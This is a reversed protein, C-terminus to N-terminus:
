QQFIEVLVEEEESWDQIPRGFFDLNTDNSFEHGGLPSKERFMHKREGNTEFAIELVQKAKTQVNKIGLKSKLRHCKRPAKSTKHQKIKKEMVNIDLLFPVIM